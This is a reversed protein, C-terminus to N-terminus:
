NKILKVIETIAHKAEDTQVFIPWDHIMEPYEFYNIKQNEQLFKVKLKRSDPLFLDHTGIFVSVEPLGKIQGNIPSLMYNNQDFSDAYLEGAMQLGKISLVLDLSDVKNLNENSMTLDLWPAILILKKPLPQFEQLCKQAFGLALGGGASDGILLIEKQPYTKRVELYLEEIFRYTDQFNANPALPYDPVILITGSKEILQEVFQWYHKKLNYIYAGGHLYIIVQNTKGSKSSFTWVNRGQIQFITQNYNKSLSKIPKVFDSDIKNKQIDNEIKYKTNTIKLIRKFLKASKSIPEQHIYQIGSNQAEIDIFAFLLLVVLLLWGNNNIKLENVCRGKLTEFGKKNLFEKMRIIM